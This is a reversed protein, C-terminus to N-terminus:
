DINFQRKDCGDAYGKAYGERYAAAYQERQRRSPFTSSDDYGAERANGLAGDDMGQLYGDEYGADDASRADVSISDAPSAYIESEFAPADAAMTTDPRAMPLRNDASVADNGDGSAPDAAMKLAVIGFFVLAAFLLFLFFPLRKM